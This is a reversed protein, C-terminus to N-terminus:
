AASFPAGQGKECLNRLSELYRAWSFNCQAYFDSLEKWSSHSFRIRTKGENDDLMFTIKTGIWEPAAEICEWTVSTNPVMNIVKMKNLWQSGFRFELVEGTESKGTTQKTWWGALGNVTSIAEYVKVRPTSIHFLHKIEAM